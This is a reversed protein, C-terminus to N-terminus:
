IITIVSYIIFFLGLALCFFVFVYKACKNEALYYWGTLGLFSISGFRKVDKDKASKDVRAFLFGLGAVLFILGPFILIINDEM